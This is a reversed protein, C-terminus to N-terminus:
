PTNGEDTIKELLAHAEPGDPHWEWPEEGTPTARIAEALDPDLGDRMLRLTEVFGTVHCDPDRCEHRLGGWEGRVEPADNEANHTM